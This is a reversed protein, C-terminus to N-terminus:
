TPIILVQVLTLDLTYQGTIHGPLTEGRRIFLRGRGNL